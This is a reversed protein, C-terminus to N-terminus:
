AGTECTISITYGDKGEHTNQVVFFDSEGCDAGSVSYTGDGRPNDPSESAEFSFTFGEYGGGVEQEQINYLTASTTKGGKSLQFSQDKKNKACQAWEYPTIM